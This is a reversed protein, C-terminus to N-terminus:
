PAERVSVIFPKDDGDILISSSADKKKCIFSEATAADHPEGSLVERIFQKLDAATM